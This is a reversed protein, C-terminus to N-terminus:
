DYILNIRSIVSCVFQFQFIVYAFTMPLLDYTQSIVYAPTPHAPAPGRMPTNKPRDASPIPGRLGYRRPAVSQFKLNM